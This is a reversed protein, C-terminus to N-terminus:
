TNTMTCYRKDVPSFLHLPLLPPRTTLSKTQPALPSPNSERGRWKFKWLNTIEQKWTAIHNFYRQLSTFGWYLWSFLHLHPVKFNELKIPLARTKRLDEHFIVGSQGKSSDWIGLLEQEPDVPIFVLFAQSTSHGCCCTLHATKTDGSFCLSVHPDSQGDDTQRDTRRDCKGFNRKAPSVHM